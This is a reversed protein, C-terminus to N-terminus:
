EACLFGGEPLVKGQADLAKPHYGLPKATSAFQQCQKVARETQAAPVAGFAGPRDWTLQGDRLVMRPPESSYGPTSGLSLQCFYGGGVMTQGARNKAKPHYGVARLGPEVRMCSLDGAAQLEPPVRGFSSVNEWTLYDQGKGDHAGLFVIQPPPDSPKEGILIGQSACASLAGALLLTGTKYIHHM